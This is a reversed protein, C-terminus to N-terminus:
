VRVVRCVPNNKTRRSLVQVTRSIAEQRGIVPDLKGQSARETLDIGYEKLAAGKEAAPGMRM